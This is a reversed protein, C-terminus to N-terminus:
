GVLPPLVRAVRDVEGVAGQRAGRQCEAFHLAVGVGGPEGPSVQGAGDAVVRAGGAALLPRRVQTLREVAVEPQRVTAGEGEGEARSRSLSGASEMADFM